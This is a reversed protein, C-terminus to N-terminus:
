DGREKWDWLGYAIAKPVRTGSLRLAVMALGRHHAEHAILYGLFTTPSGKWGKVKGTGEAAELLAAIAASSAELTGRLADHDPQAGRPFPTLDGVLAPARHTIQSVRINHMHAFQSAVTRTKPSYRDFLATAPLADLLLLNKAHSQHWTKVLAPGM